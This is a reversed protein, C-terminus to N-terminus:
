VNYKKLYKKEKQRYAKIGVQTENPRPKIICTVKDLYCSKIDVKVFREQLDTDNVRNIKKRWSNLNYKFFKLYSAYLWTQVGGIYGLGNKKDEITPKIVKKQKNRFELYSSSVFESKEKKVFALLDKLHNKTWIDDDDIRAIWNGKALTLGKNLAVVPGVFWHNEINNPYRNKTRKIKIYRIRGDKIKRVVSSTNDTSGDDIIILEFNKYSQNLVSKIARQKLILSRNFTPLLISILPKKIKLLSALKRKEFNYRIKEYVFFKKSIIYSYFISILSKM